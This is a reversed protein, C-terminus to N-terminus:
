SDELKFLKLLFLSISLSLSLIRLARAIEFRIKWLAGEFTLLSGSWFALSALCRWAFQLSMAKVALCKWKLFFFARELIVKMMLSKDKDPELSWYDCFWNLSFSTWHANWDFSWFFEMLSKRAEKVTWSVTGSVCLAGCHWWSLKLFSEEVLLFSEIPCFIEFNEILNNASKHFPLKSRVFKFNLVCWGPWRSETRCDENAGRYNM